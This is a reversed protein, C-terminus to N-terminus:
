IGYEGGQKSLYLVLLCITLYKKKIIKVVGTLAVKYAKKDDSLLKWLKRSIFSYSLKKNPFHKKVDDYMRKRIAMVEKDARFSYHHIKKSFM